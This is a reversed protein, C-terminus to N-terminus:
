GTDSRMSARYIDRLTRTKDLTGSSRFPGDRGFATTFPVTWSSCAVTADYCCAACSSKQSESELVASTEVCRIQKGRLGWAM